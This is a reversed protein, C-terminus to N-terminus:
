QRPSIEGSSARARNGLPRASPLRQDDEYWVGAMAKEEATPQHPQGAEYEQREAEYRARARAVPEVHRRAEPTIVGKKELYARIAAIEEEETMTM